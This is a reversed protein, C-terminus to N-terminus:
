YNGLFIDILLPVDKTFNRFPRDEDYGWWPTQAKYFGYITIQNTTIVFGGDYDDYGDYGVYNGSPEHLVWTGRLDYDFTESGGGDYDGCSTLLLLAALAGCVIAKKLNNMM